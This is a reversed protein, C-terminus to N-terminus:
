RSHYPEIGFAAALRDVREGAWTGASWAIRQLIRWEDASLPNEPREYGAKLRQYRQRDWVRKKEPDKYPM